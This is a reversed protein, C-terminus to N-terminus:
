TSRRVRGLSSAGSSESWASARALVLRHLRTKTTTRHRILSCKQSFMAVRLPRRYRGHINPIWQALCM